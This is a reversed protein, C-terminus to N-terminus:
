NLVTKDDPLVMNQITNKKKQDPSVWDTTCYTNLAECILTGYEYLIDTFDNGKVIIKISTFFEIPDKMLENMRNLDEFKVSCIIYKYLYNEMSIIMYVNDSVIVVRKIVDNEMLTM